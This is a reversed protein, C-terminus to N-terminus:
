RREMGGLWFRFSDWYRAVRRRERDGLREYSRRVEERLPRAPDKKRASLFRSIFRDADAWLRWGLVRNWDRLFHFGPRRDVLVGPAVGAQAVYSAIRSALLGDFMTKVRRCFGLPARAVLRNEITGAVAPPRLDITRIGLLKLVHLIERREYARVWDAYLSAWDNRSLFEEIRQSDRTAPDCAPLGFGRAAGDPSLLTISIGHDLCAVLVQHEWRVDGTAVVRNIRGLPFRRAAEGARQVVLSPGDLHVGTTCDGNIYLPKRPPLGPEM